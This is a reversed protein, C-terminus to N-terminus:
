SGRFHHRYNPQYCECPISLRARGHRQREPRRGPGHLRAARPPVDPRQLLEEGGSLHLQGRHLPAENEFLELEIDGKSTKLLVRPLNDANAENERIHKEKAWTQRSHMPISCFRRSSKKWTITIAASPCRSKNEPAQKLYQEAADFDAVAFAAVGALAPLRKADCHNEMLLKGVRAASEYNDREVMPGLMNVLFETVSKDSTQPQRM